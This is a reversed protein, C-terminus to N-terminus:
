SGLLDIDIFKLLWHTQMFFYDTEHQENLKLLKLRFIFIVGFEHQGM